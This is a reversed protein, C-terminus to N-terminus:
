PKNYITVMVPEARVVYSKGLYSTSGTYQVTYDGNPVETTWFGMKVTPLVYDNGKQYAVNGNQDLLQFLMHQMPVPTSATYILVSSRDHWNSFSTGFPAAVSLSMKPVSNIVYFERIQSQVTASASEAFIQYRGETLKTTDLIVPYSYVAVENGDDDRLHIKIDSPAKGSNKIGISYQGSIYDKDAPSSVTLYTQASAVEMAWTEAGVGSIDDWSVWVFGHDGWEPGWSNRVLWARKDNDYGVLSVAHGGGMTGTTHTYVGSSYTLFDDYVTMTTILPGDLLAAKVAEVSGNGSSPSTTGVIRTLRQNSDGCRASCSTNTGTSGSLYPMCAEDTVGQNQLYSTSKDPTWGSSCGGGGCSFIEQPSFTPRMGPIGAAISTRAELTAITSFAVCSGCNGQNMVPGLWNTGNRNRWDVSAPLDSKLKASEFDLHGKPIYSLGLLKKKEQKSLRTVWSEKATWSASAASVMSSSLLGALVLILYRNM